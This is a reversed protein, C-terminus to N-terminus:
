NTKKDEIIWVRGRQEIINYKEHLEVAPYDDMIIVEYKYRGTPMKEIFSESITLGFLCIVCIMLAILGRRNYQNICGIIFCIVIGIIFVSSLINSEYIDTKNLIEM